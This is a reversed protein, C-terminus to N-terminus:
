SWKMVNYVGKKDYGSGSNSFSQCHVRIYYVGKTLKNSTTQSKTSSNYSDLPCRAGNKNYVTIYMSTNSTIKLKKATTLSVKYWRDYDTDPTQVITVATGAKLAQAKSRCYNAKNPSTVLDLKTKAVNYFSLYYTGPELAIKETWSKGKTAASTGAVRYSSNTNAKMYISANGYREAVSVCTLSVYKGAPVTFKYMTYTTTGSSTSENIVAVAQGTTLTKTVYKDAAFANVSLLLTFLIGFVLAVSFKRIRKTNM